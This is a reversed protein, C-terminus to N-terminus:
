LTIVKKEGLHVFGKLDEPWLSTLIPNKVDRYTIEIHEEVSLM